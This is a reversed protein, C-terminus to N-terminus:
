QIILRTEKTSNWHYNEFCRADNEFVLLSKDCGSCCLCKDSRISFSGYTVMITYNGRYLSEVLLIAHGIYSRSLVSFDHTFWQLCLTKIDQSIEICGSVM